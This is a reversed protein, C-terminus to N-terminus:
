RSEVPASMAIAALEDRLSQTPSPPTEGVAAYIASVADVASRALQYHAGAREVAAQWTAQEPSQVGRTAKMEVPVFAGRYVVVLDSSGVGLGFRTSPHTRQYRQTVLKVAEPYDRLDHCVGIKFQTLANAENRMVLAGPVLRCISTMTDRLIAEEDRARTM